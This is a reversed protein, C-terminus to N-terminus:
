PQFGPEFGPPSSGWEVTRNELRKQARELLRAYDADWTEARTINDTGTLDSGDSLQPAAVGAFLKDFRTRAEFDYGGPEEYASAPRPTFRIRGVIIRQLVARGQTVSARLLRRWEALRDEVVSAPLRPVPRLNALEDGIARERAELERIRVAVSNSAADGSEFDDLYRKIRKAVEAREKRLANEQERRDDRETVRIMEQHAALTNVVALM